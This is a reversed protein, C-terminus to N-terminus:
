GLVPWRFMPSEWVMGDKSIWERASLLRACLELIERLHKSTMWEDARARREISRLDRGEACSKSLRRADSGRVRAFIRLNVGIWVCPPFSEERRARASEVFIEDTPFGAPDILERDLMNQTRPSYIEFSNSRKKKKYFFRM